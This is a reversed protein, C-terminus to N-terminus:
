EFVGARVELGLGTAFAEIAERRKSCRNRAEAGEPLDPFFTGCPCELLVVQGDAVYTAVVSLSQLPQPECRRWRSTVRVVRRDVDAADLKLEALFEDVDNFKVVAM